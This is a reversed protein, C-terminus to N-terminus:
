NWLLTENIIHKFLQEDEGALTLSETPSIIYFVTDERGNRLLIRLAARREFQCPHESCKFYNSCLYSGKAWAGTSWTSGAEWYVGVYTKFFFLLFLLNGQGIQFENKQAPVWINPDKHSVSSEDHFLHPWLFFSSHFCQDFGLSFLMRQEAYCLLLLLIFLGAYMLSTLLLIPSFPRCPTAGKKGGDWESVTAM